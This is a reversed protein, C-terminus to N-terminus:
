GKIPGIYEKEADLCFARLFNISSFRLVPKIRGVEKGCLTSTKNMLFFSPESHRQTLKQPKLWM